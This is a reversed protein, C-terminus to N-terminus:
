KKDPEKVKKKKIEKLRLRMRVCDIALIKDFLIKREEIDTIEYLDLINIIAKHDLGLPDGMGAIIVQNQIKNFMELALHNSYFLVPKGYPCENGYECPPLDNKNVRYHEICDTCNARHPASQWEM